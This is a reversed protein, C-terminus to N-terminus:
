DPSATQSTDTPARLRPLPSVEKIELNVSETILRAGKRRFFYSWIWGVMVFVKSRLGSLFSIHVAWWALWAFLGGFSRKGIDVVARASGITAMSGKDRYTFAKRPSPTPKAIEAAIISGVHKGMQLAGQAVGPVPKTTKACVQAAMDGIVFAHPHSPISCDSDVIIRGGRDKKIDQTFQMPAARVGAGWIVNASDIRTNGMVVGDDDVDTVITNLRVEIGMRTLDREARASAKASMGSLLKASGEILIVRASATNIRRFDNPISDVAIEKLAGAMEVGTPGGGVVIFTLKARRAEADEELEAAEFASFVSRRIQLADELNKLGPANAEWGDNGFYSTVGGAALVLYDYQLVSQKVTITQEGLNVASVDGMVVYTNKQTRLIYRIAQAIDGPNLGATAVQYLLPQFVHHNRKDILLVDANAKKLSRAVQIGGFGGGVIIVRPLRAGDEQLSSTPLLDNAEPM